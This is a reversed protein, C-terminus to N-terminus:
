PAAVATVAAARAPRAPDPLRWGGGMARILDVSAQLRRTAISIESSQAQLDATQAVIVSLYDVAGLEYQTLALDESKKAADVAAAEEGAEDALKNCLALNDEVQQFAALVTSRYTASAENFEDRSARVAAKRYGGDFLTMALAPGVTWWSDALGLLNTTGSNQFGGSAGLIISPYFAARTVGIMANAAAARREAAAIDPRRQLILSPAAVPITPAAPLQPLPSLAFVSAPEGVLAAIEHEYLARQAIVDVEQARAIQLQTQARDVDLGAYAGGDHLAETLKLAIAYAKTTDALLRAEADLGRLSLYADALQAELSLRVSAADAGSAEAQAKGAAVLNRVRGWLDVEYSFSGSLLNDDYYNSGTPLRLPRNASQRNATATGGLDIQPYLSARAEAAYAKAEDYRALALALDPNQRDIQQELGDLTADGYVTWWDGRPATDAPSAPTWPGVEKYATPLPMAPREYPPALSCGALAAAAAALAGRRAWRM